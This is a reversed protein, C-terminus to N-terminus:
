FEHTFSAYIVGVSYSPATQNTPLVSTPTFGTQLGNYYFDESKLRQYLYGLSVKSSKAVAYVGTLKFAILDNKIDPLPVCTFVAPDTCPPGSLLSYNLTTNYSTKAMSYVLDGLLELKGGMLGGQKASFGFTTDADTLKNNWTAGSPVTATPASLPSRAENNMERTRQQQTVYATFIGNEAYRFSGDLNLSWSQGKQMGFETGYNDDTLRGNIGFSLAETAEWNAGGKFMNQKRSAEFFPNFGIFEGGNLGTIGPPAAAIGAATPNGDRGIMPPRANLDRDSKRDAYSYGANLNVNGPAKYRWLAGIKDEKTNPITVCNTGPAYAPTGGGTAYQNCERHTDDHNYALRVKQKPSLRYDGALEAQAKTVSLPANPYNATNGASGDIARFNYINSSTKNQRDDYKMGASLILNRTTQDTVKLDAHTNRISGNLSSTPSPTVMAATDYAYPTDQTNYSYSVGGAIKTRQSFVYGGNLNFQHLLNSPVTGMTETITSGAFTQFNVGNYDNHFYSGYYSVSAYASEGVWNLAVNATDTKWNQPMPLIAIREGNPTAGGFNASAFGMLKAGSQQLENFDVKVSWQRNIILGGTIGANTRDNSIEMTHFQGLQAPTLLRTNAALGFGPLTFNNGGMNGAYPTQYSDSTYHTLQDVTFGLTWRGQDSVSGGVARSTLGIDTGWVQWRKTGKDETYADGGRVDFNGIGYAGSKNLGTYEGFKASDKSVSLVGFEVFNPPARLSGAPEQAKLPGAYMAALAGQVALALAGANTKWNRTKM